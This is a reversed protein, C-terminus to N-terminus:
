TSAAASARRSQSEGATERIGVRALGARIADSHEAYTCSEVGTSFKEKLKRFESFFPNAFATALPVDCLCDVGIHAAPCPELWGEPSIHAIGNGGAQCGGYRIEDAPFGLLPIRSTQRCRNIRESIREGLPPNCLPGPIQELFFGSRCGKKAMAQVFEPAVAAEVNDTSITASFGFPLGRARLAAMAIETKGFTGEGRRADCEPEPGDVSVAWLMNPSLEASALFEPLLLGNTFIVFPVNAMTPLLSFFERHLLPEGGTVVILSVGLDYAEKLIREALPLPMHEKKYGSTYCHPCRLNCAGTVALFLVAPVRLNQEERLGRRIASSTKIRWLLRPLAAATDRNLRPGSRFARSAHDLLYDDFSKFASLFQLVSM